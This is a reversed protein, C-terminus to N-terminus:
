HGIQHIEPVVFRTTQIHNKISYDNLAKSFNSIQTNNLNFQTELSSKQQNAQQTYEVLHQELVTLSEAMSNVREDIKSIQVQHSALESSFKAGTTIYAVAISGIVGILAIVIQVFAKSVKETEAM